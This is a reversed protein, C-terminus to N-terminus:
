FAPQDARRRQIVILGALLLLAPIFFIEKPMRDAEVEARLVRVPEDGYFDYGNALQEFFPTGPFPEELLLADGDEITTLGANGLRTAGDAMAGLEPLLTTSATKGTDFDPGEVVLRVTANDPLAAIAELVAPGTHREYPAAIQDLWWGPRFLMFAVVLLVGTEWARSRSFFYGQTAAAFCLMAILATIFTYVAQIPTVDILLLDTNFIFMFPLLATRIDYMFGQVGTAIPDGRSIAAAAYAALGVPPTDDALIGFYFVFMHVAILPVV